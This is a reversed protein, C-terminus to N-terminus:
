RVRHQVHKSRYRHGPFTPEAASTLALAVISFTLIRSRLMSLLKRASYPVRSVKM